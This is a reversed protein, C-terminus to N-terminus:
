CLVFEKAYLIATKGNDYYGLRVRTQRYGSRTYLAQASVNDEVVELRLGTKKMAKLTSEVDDLLLRSIRQGRWEPDVALSYLRAWTAGNRLFILAYGVIGKAAEAVLVINNKNALQRRFSRRSMVDYDFCRQELSVLADLDSIEARRIRAPGHM